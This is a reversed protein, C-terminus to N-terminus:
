NNVLIDFAWHYSLEKLKGGGYYSFVGTSASIIHDCLLVNNISCVAQCKKTMEDDKPSPKPNGSPHNHVVVIGSVNDKAIEESLEDTKLQVNHTSSTSFRRRRLITNEADLFYVDLVEYPLKGYERKCFPLFAEYEFKAPFTSQEQEGVLRIIRGIGSLFAATREGVGEVQELQKASASLANYISGFEAILRHALPNTNQRPIAYFLLLELLEHPCLSGDDLKEMLRRRHGSHDDSKGNEASAKKDKQM